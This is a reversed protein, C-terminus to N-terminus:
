IEYGYSHSLSEIFPRVEAKLENNWLKYVPFGPNKKMNLPENPNVVLENIKTSQIQLIEEHSFHKKTGSFSIFRTFVPVQSTLEELKVTLTNSPEQQRLFRSIYENTTQWGWALKAAQSLQGWRGTDVMKVRGSEWISDNLHWGKGIASHIFDGPHRIVHIFKAKPFVSAIAYSFFVMCQNSEMFIRNNNYADLILEMRAAQFMAKLIEQKDQNQFAFNSFYQLNPFAEHYSQMDELSSMANHIFLSGSRGTSLVFVPQYENFM